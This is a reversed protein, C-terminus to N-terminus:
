QLSIGAALAEGLALWQALTLDEPRSSPDIAAATLAGLLAPAPAAAALANTIKKRRLTFATAALAFARALHPSREGAQRLRLHLVASMVRPPPEFCRPPVSFLLEAEAFGEVELTLLGRSREGPPAVIREAVELQLMVVIIPFLEGRPLLRRLIATGVSYPLNGVIQWPGGAALVDLDASLADAGIVELGPPNGLAAPLARALGADVEIARVGPFREVLLRTMAGRGPGIELM